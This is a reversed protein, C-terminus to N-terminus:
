GGLHLRELGVWVRASLLQIVHEKSDVLLWSRLEGQSLDAFPEVVLALASPLKCGGDAEQRWVGGGLIQEGQHQHHLFREETM